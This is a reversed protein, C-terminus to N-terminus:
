ACAAGVASSNSRPDINRPERSDLIVYPLKYDRDKKGRTLFHVAPKSIKFERFTYKYYNIYFSHFQSMKIIIKARLVM